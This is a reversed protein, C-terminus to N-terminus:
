ADVTELQIRRFRRETVNNGGHADCVVDFDRGGAGDCWLCTDCQARLKFKAQKPCEREGALVPDGPWKVRYTRWGLAKAAARQEPTEVSAMAFRRLVQVAPDAWRHDYATWGDANALLRVWVEAPVASPNGYAGLRVARGRVYTLLAPTAKPYLGNKWSRWVQLPAYQMTVYCAHGIRWRCDGCVSRDRGGKLAEAPHVDARLIWTQIMPGTAHNDSPHLIGTALAVIPKRDILSPGRYLTLGQPRGGRVKVGSQRRPLTIPCRQKRPESDPRRRNCDGAAEKM